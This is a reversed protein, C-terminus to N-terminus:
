RVKRGNIYLRSHLHPKCMLNFAEFPFREAVQVVDHELLHALADQRVPSRAVDAMPVFTSWRHVCPVLKNTRKCHM